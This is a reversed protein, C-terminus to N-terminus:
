NMKSLAATRLSICPFRGEIHKWVWNLHRYLGRPVVPWGMHTREHHSPVDRYGEPNAADVPVAAVVPESYYNLGLFDIPAAILEMDGAEIPPPVDNPYADFHRQPYSRGLLPDLFFRTHMDAARDAATIDESRSTAPRPTQLNHTIGIPATLGTERYATVAMGHGLLLHHGAAWSASRDTRGPAHVGAQYGLISSCWAENLTIWMDVKDGLEAFCASAYDRFRYATDRNPWGGRDELAQPLDWHYLTAVARIGERHLEDILRKYYDFGNPNLAGSGDPQIRPWAISFRYAGIGADRMLRVDEPYRHYQDVSVDGTHGHAVAGPTRSFTDWISTGRGDEAAAGEVQYSAAAVGWVFGEPLNQASRGRKIQKENGM